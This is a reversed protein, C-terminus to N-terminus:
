FPLEDDEIDTFGEMDDASEFQNRVPPVNSADTSSGAGQMTKPTLFEVEDAVVESVYRRTGDKAEYNRTQLEGVVAVKRGQALYKSCTDALQRWTIVPIYDTVKEGSQNQYKRTIAV